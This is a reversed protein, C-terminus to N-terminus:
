GHADEAVYPFVNAVLRRVYLRVPDSPDTSIYRGMWGSAEAKIDFPLNHERAHERGKILHGILKSAAAMPDSAMNDRVQRLEHGRRGRHHRGTLGPANNRGHM